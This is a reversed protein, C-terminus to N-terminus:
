QAAEMSHNPYKRGLKECFRKFEEDFPKDPKIKMRLNIRPRGVQQIDYVFAPAGHIYQVRCFKPLTHSMAVDQGAEAQALYTKVDALKDLLPVASSQRSTVTTDFKPHGVIEFYERYIGGEGVLADMRRYEVYPPLMEPTIGEPLPPRAKPPPKTAGASANVVTLNERRNDLKNTNKRKVSVRAPFTFGLDTVETGHAEAIMSYGVFRHLMCRGQKSNGYVYGSGKHVYWVHLPFTRIRAADALSLLTYLPSGRCQMKVYETGSDDRVHFMRNTDHLSGREYAEVLQEHADLLHTPVSTPLPVTTASSTMM